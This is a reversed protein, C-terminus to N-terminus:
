EDPDCTESALEELEAAVDDDDEILEEIARRLWAPLELPEFGRRLALVRVEFELPSAPEGGCSYTPGRAPLAPSTIRAEYDAKCDIEAISLCFTSSLTM